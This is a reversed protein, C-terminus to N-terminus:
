RPSCGPGGARPVSELRCIGLPDVEGRLLALEDATPRALVACRESVIVEFGTQARVEDLTVGEHLGVLELRRSTDGLEFVCLNTVVRVAPWARM